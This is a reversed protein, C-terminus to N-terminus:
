DTSRNLADLHENLRRKVAGLESEAREVNLATEEIIERVRKRLGECEASVVAYAAQAAKVNRAPVGYDELAKSIARAMAEIM